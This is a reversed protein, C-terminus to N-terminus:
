SFIGPNFFPGMSALLSASKLAIISFYTAWTLAWTFWFTAVKAFAMVVAILVPCGTLVWEYLGSFSIVIFWKTLSNRLLSQYTTSLIGSAVAM